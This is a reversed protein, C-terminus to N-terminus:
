NRNALSLLDDRLYVLSEYRDQRDTALAKLLIEDLRDPLGVRESPAIPVENLVEHMVATPSGSFPPKGTFLEYFVAGLQYIDTIEDLSGRSRDFQEPAAYQPSLGQVSASIDLLHKSLGWDAVKPIDPAGTVSEFLVNAPKLDLHAVGNRHAHRVASVISLSTSLAVPLSLEGARDGLDGGDMYEMAIWPLPKTGFALVDVIHDHDDLESWTQAENMLRDYQDAGLTGRMRPQKIALTLMGEDTPYRCRYVDANGGVGITERDILADYSIELDGSQGGQPPREIRPAPAEATQGSEKSAGSSGANEDGAVSGTADATSPEVVAPSDSGASENEDAGRRLWWVAAGGLGLLGVVASGVDFEGSSGGSPPETNGQATLTPTPTESTTAVATPSATATPTASATPMATPQPPRATVVVTRTATDTNGDDDRVDLRILYEGAERFNVKVRPGEGLDDGDVSWEYREIRGDSDSSSSADLRVRQGPIPTNPSFSFAADPERPSVVVNLFTSDTADGSGFVRLEVSYSGASRFQLELTEGAGQYRGDIYWRYTDIDGRSRSADFEVTDGVFPPVPTFGFSAEVESDDEQGHAGTSAVAPLAALAVGSRLLGRRTREGGM